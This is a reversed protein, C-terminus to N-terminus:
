DASKGNGSARVLGEIAAVAAALQEEPPLGGPRAGSVALPTLEALDGVVRIGSGRLQEVLQGARERLWPSPEYGVGPEEGRRKALVRKALQQKVKRAYEGYAMGEVRENLLRLVEASAAGLSENTPGPEAFGAPDVGLTSAFREWLLTSPAGPTPVTVLTMRDVGVAASWRECIGAVDQERWFRRGLGDRDAIAAVYEDYPLFRGNKLTEQWMAPISRGLDRATVVVEVTGTPFSSVVREIKAAAAPGLFEMSIVATGSAAGIEDVMGQWAGEPPAAVVRKRELVESVARVQDPWANGPVLVGQDALRDRNLFLLRQLYSTGSKMAGVHLIVRQAM